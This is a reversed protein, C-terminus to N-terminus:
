TKVVGLESEHFTATQLRLDKTFWMTKIIEKHVDRVTMHVESYRTSVVDGQKFAIKLVRGMYVNTPFFAVERLDDERM